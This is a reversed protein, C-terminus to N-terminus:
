LASGICDNPENRCHTQSSLDLIQLLWNTGSRGQGAILVYRRPNMYMEQFVTVSSMLPLPSAM